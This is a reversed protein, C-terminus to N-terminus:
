QKIDCKYQAFHKKHNNRMSRILVEPVKNENLGYIEVLIAPFSWYCACYLWLHGCYLAPKQWKEEKDIKRRYNRWSIVQNILQMALTIRFWMVYYVTDLSNNKNKWSITLKSIVYKKIFFQFKEQKKGYYKSRHRCIQM